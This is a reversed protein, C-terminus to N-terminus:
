IVRQTNAIGSDIKSILRTNVLSTRLCAKGRGKALCIAFHPWSDQRYIYPGQAALTNVMQVHGDPHQEPLQSKIYIYLVCARARAQVCVCVCVCVCM